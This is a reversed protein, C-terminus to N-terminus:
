KFEYHNGGQSQYLVGHSRSFPIEQKVAQKTIGEEFVTIVQLEERDYNTAEWQVVRRAM